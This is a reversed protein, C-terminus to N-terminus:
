WGTKSLIGRGAGQSPSQFIAKIAEFVIKPYESVQSSICAYKKHDTARSSHALKNKHYTKLKPNLQKAM